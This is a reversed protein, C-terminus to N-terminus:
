EFEDLKQTIEQFSYPYSYAFYTINDSSKSSPFTWKLTFIDSDEDYSFTPKSPIRRWPVIVKKGDKSVTKFVPRLGATFLKTQNKMNRVTFSLNTSPKAGTVSFYFWGRYLIESVYPKADASIYLDFSAEGTKRVQYLNGADFMSSITIGSDEFTKHIQQPNESWKKPRTQKIGQPSIGLHHLYELYSMGCPYKEEEDQLQVESFDPRREVQCDFMSNGMSIM